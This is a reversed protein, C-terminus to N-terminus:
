AATIRLRLAVVLPVYAGSHPEGVVLVGTGNSTVDDVKIVLKVALPSPSKAGRLIGNDRSAAPAKSRNRCSPERLRRDSRTQHETEM